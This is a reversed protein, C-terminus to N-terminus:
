AAKIRRKSRILTLIPRHRATLCSPALAHSAKCSACSGKPRPIQSTRGPQHAPRGPGYLVPDSKPRRTGPRPRLCSRFPRGTSRPPGSAGLFPRYVFRPLRHGRSVPPKGWPALSAGRSALRGDPSHAAQGALRAARGVSRAAALGPRVARGVPRAARKGPFSVCFRPGVTENPGAVM